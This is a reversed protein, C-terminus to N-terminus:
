PPEESHPNVISNNVRNRISAPRMSRYRHYGEGPFYFVSRSHPRDRFFPLKGVQLAFKGMLFFLLMLYVVVRYFIHMLVM